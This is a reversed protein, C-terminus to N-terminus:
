GRGARAPPGRPRGPGGRTASGSGPRRMAPGMAAAPRADRGGRGRGAGGPGAVMLRGDAPPTVDTFIGRLMEGKAEMGVERHIAAMERNDPRVTGAAIVAGCLRGIAFRLLLLHRGLGAGRARPHVGTDLLYVCPVPVGGPTWPPRWRCSPTASWGTAPGRHRHDPARLLASGGAGAPRSPLGRRAGPPGAVEEPWRLPRCGRSWPTVAHDPRVPHLGGREPRLKRMIGEEEFGLRTVLALGASDHDCIDAQVRRLEAAQIQAVLCRALTRIVFVPHARGVPTVCLWASRCAPGSGCSAAWRPSRATWARRGPRARTWGTRRGRGM